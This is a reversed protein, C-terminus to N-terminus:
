FGRQRIRERKEAEEVRAKREAEIESPSKMFPHPKGDKSGGVYQALLIEGKSLPVVDLDLAGLNTEPRARFDKVLLAVRRSSLPGGPDLWDRVDLGLRLLDVELLDLHELAHVLRVLGDLGLGVRDLYAELLSATHRGFPDSTIVRARDREDLLQWVLPPHHLLKMLQEPGLWMPDVRARYDRGRFEVDGWAGPEDSLILRASM